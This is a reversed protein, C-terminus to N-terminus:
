KAGHSKVMLAIQTQGDSAANLLGQVVSQRNHEPQNQSVKWKGQWRNIHLNVGVINKLLKDTFASPADSVKWPHDQSAEHVDTLETIINLVENPDQVASLTCHAHIVAYNWTPVVMGSDRKSAYWNPSIYASPGQFVVLLEQHPSVQWLPNCKAVHGVLTGLGNPAPKYLVPIHDATLGNADHRVVMALPFQEILAVLDADSNEQFHSPCYM